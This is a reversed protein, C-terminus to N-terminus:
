RKNPNDVDVVENFKHLHDQLAKKNIKRREGTEINEVIWLGGGSKIVDGWANIYEFSEDIIQYDGSSGFDYIDGPAIILEGQYQKVTRM